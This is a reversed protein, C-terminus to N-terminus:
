YGYEERDYREERELMEIKPEEISGFHGSVVGNILLLLFGAAVLGYTILHVGAFDFGEVGTLAWFFEYLKYGFGLGAIIAGALFVWLWTRHLQSRKPQEETM